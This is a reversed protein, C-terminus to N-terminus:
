VASKTKCEKLAGARRMVAMLLLGLFTTFGVGSCRVLVQSISSYHISSCLHLKVKWLVPLLIGVCQPPAPYHPLAKSKHHPYPSTDEPVFMQAFRIFSSCLSASVMTFRMPMNAFVLVGCESSENPFVHRGAM